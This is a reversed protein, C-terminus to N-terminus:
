MPWRSGPRHREHARGPSSLYPSRDIVKDIRGTVLRRADPDTPMTYICVKGQIAAAHLARTYLMLTAGIQTCKQTASMPHLDDWIDQMGPRNMFEIPQGMENLLHNQAWIRPCWHEYAQRLVDEEAFRKNLADTDLQILSHSGRSSTTVQRLRYARYIGASSTRAHWLAAAQYCGQVTDRHSTATNSGVCGVPVTRGRHMRAALSPHMGQLDDLRLRRVIDARHWARLQGRWAIYVRTVGSVHLLEPYTILSRWIVDGRGRHVYNAVEDADRCQALHSPVDYADPMTIMCVLESKIATSM